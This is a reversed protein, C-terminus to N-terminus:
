RRRMALNVIHDVFDYHPWGVAELSTHLLSDPGLPPVSDTELMYVKGKPTVVFDSSSYHRMGLIEHAAKAMNEMEVKEKQKFSGSTKFFGEKVEVPILAYIKEGRAEEVVACSAHKGYVMEEILVKSSRRFTEEVMESLERYTHARMVGVGLSGTAPKVIVPHMYTRFINVLHSPQCTDKYLVEHSPTNIGHRMYTSKAMDKNLALASSVTGPGTFPIRLPELVRSLQGDEGYAGHLANWVVDVHRLAQFPEHVVGGRHWEGRNSIFIDIPEYREPKERLYSLVHAGTKLSHEYGYSPGGRIVAIRKKALLSM